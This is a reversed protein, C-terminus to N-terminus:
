KAILAKAQKAFGKSLAKPLRLTRNRKPSNPSKLHSSGGRRVIVKGRGTIKVRKAIAKRTKMKPM